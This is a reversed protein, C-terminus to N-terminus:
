DSHIRQRKLDNNIVIRKEKALSIVREMSKESTFTSQIIEENDDIDFNSFGFLSGFGASTNVHKIKPTTVTLDLPSGDYIDSM